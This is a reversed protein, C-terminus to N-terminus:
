RLALPTAALQQLVLAGGSAEARVELKMAQETQSPAV